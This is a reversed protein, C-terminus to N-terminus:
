KAPTEGSSDVSGDSRGDVSADCKNNGYAGRGGWGTIGEGNIVNCAPLEFPLEM